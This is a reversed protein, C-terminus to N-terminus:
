YKWITGYLHLPIYLCITENLCMHLCNINNQYQGSCSTFLIDFFQWIQNNNWKHRDESVFAHSLQLSAKRYDVSKKKSQKVKSVKVLWRLHLFKVNFRCFVSTVILAKSWVVKSWNTSAQCTLHFFKILFRSLWVFMESVDSRGGIM